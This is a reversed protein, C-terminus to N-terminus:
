SGFNKGSFMIATPIKVFDLISKQFMEKEIFEILFEVTKTFLKDLKQDIKTEIITWYKLSLQQRPWSSKIIQHSSCDRSKKIEFKKSSKKRKRIVMKPISITQNSPRYYECVSSDIDM